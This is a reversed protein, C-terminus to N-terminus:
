RKQQQQAALLALLQQMAQPNQLGPTAAGQSGTTAASSAATQYSAPQQGQTQQSTQQSGYYGLPPTHGQSPQSQAQQHQQLLALVAPPLGALSPAPQQPAPPSPAVQPNYASAPPLGGPPPFHTQGTSWGPPGPPPPPPNSFAPNSPTSSSNFSTRPPGPAPAASEQPNKLAALLQQVKRAQELRDDVPPIPATGSGSPGGGRYGRGGRSSAYGRDEDWGDGGRSDRGGRYSDRDRRDYDDYSGGRGGRGGRGRGPGRPARERYGDDSSRSFGGRHPISTDPVAEDLFDWAFELDMVGDQLGQHRLTDFAQETARTDYMEVFRQDPRGPVFRIQKVDGFQQFKRRVENEDMPSNSNRLTVLLTGQNKDRDCRQAQEDGRPLSYHVDIPRGAVETGQLRDRAAQASRLDYYTVFVMGRTHILDFFTKIQGHDEFQRRIAASDSEYCSAKINRVFLTRCPRERNIREEIIADHVKDDRERRRPIPPRRSINLTGESWDDDYSSNGGHPASPQGFGGNGRGFSATQGPPAANYSYPQNAGNYQANSDYGSQDYPDFPPPAGSDFGGYSGGGRGRGRGAGRGGGRYGFGREARPFRPGPSSSRRREDYGTGGYPHHRHM